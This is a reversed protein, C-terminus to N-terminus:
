KKKFISKNALKSKVHKMIKKNILSNGLTCETGVEIPGDM